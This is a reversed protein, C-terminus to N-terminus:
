PTVSQACRFGNRPDSTSHASNRASCRSVSAVQDLAGAPDHWSSGRVCHNWPPEVNVPNRTSLGAYDSWNYWDFVWESANGVLDMVGYASMGNPYSGVPRLGLQDTGPTTQLLHEAYAWADASGAQWPQSQIGALTDVNARSSDWQNGWPYLNGNSGRCAKEWEAETPLRKGAWVCYAHADNWSVEVVPYDAQGVPYTGGVWYGPAKNRTASLFRSYQLNTVEYRDMEFADVYVSQEPAENFNGHNSGRIFEGAPILVMSQNLVDALSPDNVEALQHIRQTLDRLENDTGPRKEGHLIGAILILLALSAWFAKQKWPTM